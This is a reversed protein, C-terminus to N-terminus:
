YRLAVTQTEVDHVRLFQTYGLNLSNTVLGTEFDRVPAPRDSFLTQFSKRSHGIMIPAKLSYFEELNRLIFLSQSKSKGFGIGPDFILQDSKVGSELLSKEKKRWWELLIEVPSENEPLTKKPEAPISLSHMVFAPSKSEKLITQMEKSNFGSVDNLYDIRHSEIVQRVVEPRRCDLSIKFDLKKRLPRLLQLAWKLNKLEVETSVFSANPRTSEAGIDLIEAGDTVLKEAHQNLSEANLLKGGDSFSDTTINLIAVLRPWFASKSKMTDYPKEFKWSHCWDPRSKLIAPPFVELLPLLAFPREVLHPHPLILDKHNLELEHWYLLDLDITRPAWKENQLRGLKLEVAKLSFLLEMPSLSDQVECLVASNLYKLNWGAPSNEPLQATSEYISSVNLVKVSEIKKIESLATRLYELPIDLNSGLGIVVLHSHM